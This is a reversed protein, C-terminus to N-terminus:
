GWRLAPMGQRQCSQCRQCAPSTIPAPAQSLDTQALANPTGEAALAGQVVGQVANGKVYAQVQACM